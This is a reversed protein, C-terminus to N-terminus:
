AGPKNTKDPTSANAAPAQWPKGLYRNSLHNLYHTVNLKEGTAATFLEDTTLLSGKSHVNDRLWERLPTFNGKAIEARIEPKTKCAAAFFQAAGIDGLTYAPFYGITGTPWHVDQMCGQSADPPTIGLLNKMGDNWAQPLDNVSLTGEIIAKELKHRLIIHAPYTMEDAHIRIFSPEVRNVLRELNQASLAPDDPRNFIERAQKELYQFFEPTHCAQVEIIRSQSEHVSMGISGGVPQYRWQEPTNQEYLAHGTEHVTSYVAQLFNNEDCAATFWVDSASGGCSPHSDSMDMRGKSFDFGLAATLRRCLEEQQAAPFPGKLPLPAQAAAQRQTAERILAPLAKELVGLERTVTADSLGPSFTDLLAEYVSSLGLKDKKIQGITRMIDFAHGYWDKVKSWDGTKRLDTHLRQGENGLRSVETALENPLSANHVWYRRMLTLNRKDEPSLSATNKEAEDLWQEVDPAAILDHAVEALAMMQRLRDGGSNKPMSVQAEKDLIAAANNINIIKEFRTKLNEYATM